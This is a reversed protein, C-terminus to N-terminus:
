GCPLATLLTTLLVTFNPSLLATLRATVLLFFQGICDTVGFQAAAQQVTRAPAPARSGRATTETGRKQYADKHCTEEEKGRPTEGQM